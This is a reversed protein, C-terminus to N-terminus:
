LTVPNEYQTVRVEKINKSSQNINYGIIDAIVQNPISYGSLESLHIGGSMRTNVELLKPEGSPTWRYQVNFPGRFHFLKWLKYSDDILEKTLRIEKIRGGLKYRPIAIFEGDATMYCDVSVEPSLLKPMIMIPPLKGLEEGDKIANFAAEFTLVNECKNRLSSFSNLGQDILRFSTAGEDKDFKFCVQEEQSVFGEYAKKFEESTNAIVYKPVKDYFLAKLCKYVKDKSQFLEINMQDDCIVSTGVQKFGDISSSIGLMYTHPFFVKVNHEKCFNVTYNVYDNTSLGKPEIYFEDVVDRYACNESTHTGIFTAWPFAERMSLIVNRTASFWNSFWIVLPTNQNNEM